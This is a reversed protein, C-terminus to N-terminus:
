AVVDFSKNDVSWPAIFRTAERLAEVINPTEARSPGACMSSKAMDYSFCVLGKEDLVVVRM